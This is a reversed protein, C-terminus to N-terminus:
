EKKSRERRNEKIKGLKSIKGGKEEGRGLEQRRGSGVRAVGKKREESVVQFSSLRRPRVKVPAGEGPGRGCNM